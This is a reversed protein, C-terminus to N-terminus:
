AEKSVSALEELYINIFFMNDSIVAEISGGMLVILKQTVSLGIGSSNVHRSKDGKYFRDFVRTVDPIQGDKIGNGVSIKIKKGETKKLRVTVSDAGHNLSNKILNQFVRKLAPEDGVTFVDEDIDIDPTMGRREFDEFYSLLTSILTQSVNVREKELKYSSNNIKTYIFMQELMEGLSDIREAIIGKYRDKDEESDSECMLDFYGKLSTLPTRIDHSMSTITEKIEDDKRATEIERNRCAVLVKNIRDTLKRISRTSAGISITMNTKNEGIFDLQKNLERISSIISVIFFVLVLIILICIILIIILPNM